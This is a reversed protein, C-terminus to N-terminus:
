VVKGDIKQHMDFTEEIKNWYGTMSMHADLSYETGLGRDAEEPFTPHFILMGILCSTRDALIWGPEQDVTHIGTDMDWKNKKKSLFEETISSEKSQPDTWTRDISSPAITGFPDEHDTCLVFFNLIPHQWPLHRSTDKKLRTSPM